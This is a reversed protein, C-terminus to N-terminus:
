EVSDEYYELKVIRGENEMLELLRSITNRDSFTLPEDERITSELREKWYNTRDLTDINSANKTNHEAMFSPKYDWSILALVSAAQTTDSREVISEDKMVFRHTMLINALCVSEHDNLQRKLANALASVLLQESNDILTQIEATPSESSSVLPAVSTPPEQKSVGSVMTGEAQAWYDTWDSDDPAGAEQWLKKAYNRIEGLPDILDINLPLGTKKKDTM